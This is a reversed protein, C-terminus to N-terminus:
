VQKRIWRGRLGSYWYAPHHPAGMGSGHVLFVTRDDLVVSTTGADGCSELLQEYAWTQGEDYSVLYRTGFAGSGSVMVGGDPLQQACVYGTAGLVLQPTSWARGRDLSIPRCLMVSPFNSPEIWNMRFLALWRGSPLPLITMENPGLGSALDGEMVLTADGWTLGGDRSRLLGNGGRGRGKENPRERHGGVPLIM